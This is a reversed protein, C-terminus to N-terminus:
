KTPFIDVLRVEFFNDSKFLINSSTQMDIHTEFECFKFDRKVRELYKEYCRWSEINLRSM